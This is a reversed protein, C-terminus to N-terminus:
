PSDVTGTKAFTVNTGGSELFRAVNTQMEKTANASAAPSLLSAHGGATYRILYDGAASPDTEIQNPPTGILLRALPTSGSTPSRITDTSTGPYSPRVRNPVVQDPQSSSGGVVELSLTNHNAMTGAAYNAPDGKDIVTQAVALFQAYAPTGKTLGKAELGAEIAPGIDPSGDLLKAIGSGAMGFVAAKLNPEKQAYPVGVIGGLSHGVISINNSLDDDGDGDLDPASGGAGVAVRIARTVAFLDAAAQRLNDRSTRLSALNIFHEGSPDIKGDPGDSGDNDVLDVDFTRELGSVYLGNSTDTVGHLPLDIAIVTLGQKTLAEAIGLMATRNATIGHQFIVVENANNDKPIAALVPIDLTANADPTRSGPVLPDGNADTWFGSRVKSPDSDGPQLYYPVGSLVGAFVDGSSSSDATDRGTDTLQNATGGSDAFAPTQSNITSQAQNLAEGVTQTTFVWSAVIDERAINTAATAAALQSNVLQRVPELTQAQDDTLGKVRSNGSGDVLASTRKALKYQRSPKIPGGGREEVDNTIVVMYSEDPALPTLPTVALTRGNRDASSLGARYEIGPALIGNSDADASGLRGVLKPGPDSPDHPDVRPPPTQTPDNTTVVSFVRVSIPGDGNITSGDLARTSTATASTSTSFGDTSDLAENGTGNLTGDASGQFALNNPSPVLDALPAYQIEGDAPPVSDDADGGGCATLASAATLTLVYACTRLMNMLTDGPM